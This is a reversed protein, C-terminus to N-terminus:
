IFIDANELFYLKARDETNRLDLVVTNQGATLTLQLINVDKLQPPHVRVM